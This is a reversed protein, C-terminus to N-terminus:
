REVEDQSIDNNGSRQVKPEDSLLDYLNRQRKREEALGTELELIRKESAKYETEFTKQRDAPMYPIEIRYLSEKTFSVISSGSSLSLLKAMGEESELYSKLYYRNLSSSENLRIVFINGAPYIDEKETVAVKIPVATKSIVIDRDTLRFKGLVSDKWGPLGAIYPMTDQVRNNEIDAIGLYRGKITPTSENKGEEHVIEFVDTKRGSDQLGRFVRAENVLLFPKHGGDLSDHSHAADKRGIYVSGNLSYGAAVVEEYTAFQTYGSSDAALLQEVESHPRQEFGCTRLDVFRIGRNDMRNDFVLLSASVNKPYVAGLPLNVIGTLRRADVFRRQLEAYGRTFLSNSVMVVARGGADLGKLVQGIFKETRDEASRQVNQVLRINSTKGAAAKQFFPPFAYIRSFTGHITENGIFNVLGKKGVYEAFGPSDYFVAFSGDNEFKLLSEVLWFLREPTKTRSVGYDMMFM